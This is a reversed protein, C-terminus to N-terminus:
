SEEATSREHALERLAFVLDRSAREIRDAAAEISDIDNRSRLAVAALASAIHETLRHAENETEREVPTAQPLSINKDM